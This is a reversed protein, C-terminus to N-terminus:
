APVTEDHPAAYEPARRTGSAQRISGFYAQVEASLRDGINVGRRQIQHLARARLCQWAFVRQRRRVAEVLPRGTDDILKVDRLMADFDLLTLRARLHNRNTREPNSARGLAITVGRADNKNGLLFDEVSCVAIGVDVVNLGAPRIAHITIGTYLYLTNADM